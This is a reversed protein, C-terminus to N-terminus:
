KKQKDSRPWDDSPKKFSVVEGDVFYVRYGKESVWQTWLVDRKELKGPHHYALIPHGLAHAVEVFLQGREVKGAEAANGHVYPNTRPEEVKKKRRALEDAIALELEARERKVWRDKQAWPEKAKDNGKRFIFGESAKYDAFTVWDYYTRGKEDAHRVRVAKKRHLLKKAKARDSKSAKPAEAVESYLEVAGREDGLETEHRLGLELMVSYNNTKAIVDRWAALEDATIKKHVARLRKDDPLLKVRLGCAKGLARIKKLDGNAEQLWDLFLVEEDKQKDVRDVRLAFSGSREIVTGKVAVMSRRKTLMRGGTDKNKVLQDALPGTGSVLLVKRTWEAKFISIGPRYFEHWRGVVYYKKGKQGATLKPLSKLPLHKYGGMDPWSQAQAPQPLFCTLAVATALAAPLRM